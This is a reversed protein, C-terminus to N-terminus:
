INKYDSFITLKKITKLIQAPQDIVPIEQNLQKLIPWKSEGQAYVIAEDFYAIARPTITIRKFNGADYACTLETSLVAPSHPLMGATHGDPGIGFLGIVYDSTILERKLNAAFIKASALFDYDALVPILKAEPLNFGAEKLQRWNSDVHDLPGYREDTLTVILNHHDHRSIKKAVLSAVSIASGGPVFWFVRQGIKLKDIICTAVFDSIKELDSTNIFEPSSTM